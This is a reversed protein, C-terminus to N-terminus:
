GQLTFSIPVLVWAEVPQGGQRAPVFKWHKVTDLASQDLRPSGSSTRLEVREPLGGASVLVRLVVRGQEGMRRALPPYDPAPNQLYDANFRPPVIPPQAVPQPEAEVPPLTQPAPPPAVFPSTVEAPATIIPAPEAPKQVPQPRPRVVPKPKPPEPPTVEVKPPTVLSVMLPAASSLVDRVPQYQPLAVIAVVHLAVAV